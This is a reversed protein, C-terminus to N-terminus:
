IWLTKVGSRNANSGLLFVADVCTQDVPFRRVQGNCSKVQFGPKVDVDLVVYLSSAPRVQKAM